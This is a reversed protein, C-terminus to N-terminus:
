LCTNMYMTYEFLYEHQHGLEPIVKLTCTGVQFSKKVDRLM